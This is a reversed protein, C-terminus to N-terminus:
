SMRKLADLLVRARRRLEYDVPMPEGAKITLALAATVREVSRISDTSLLLQKPKRRRRKM